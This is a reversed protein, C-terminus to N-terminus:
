GRPLLKEYAGRLKVDYANREYGPGNYLKAFGAWDKRQVAKVMGTAKLFRGLLVLQMRESEQMAEVLETVSLMGCLGYNFGMLQFMGWSTAELAAERNVRVAQELRDYEALGGRYFGKTWRPYLVEENGKVWLKPDLGRKRLGRWFVHGEFLITPMGPAVFGGRGGSEVLQIAQLVEAECGLDAAVEEFDAKCLNVTKM